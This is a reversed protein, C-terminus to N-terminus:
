SPDKPPRPPTTECLDYGRLRVAERVPDLAQPDPVYLAVNTQLIVSGDPRLVARDEPHPNRRLALHHLGPPGVVGPVLASM